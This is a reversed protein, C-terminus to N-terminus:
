AHQITTCAAIQANRITHEPTSRSPAVPDYHEPKTCAKVCNEITAWCSAEDTRGRLRANSMGANALDSRLGAIGLGHARLYAQLRDIEHAYDRKKREALDALTGNESGFGQLSFNM